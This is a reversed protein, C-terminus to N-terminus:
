IFLLSRKVMWVLLLLGSNHSGLDRVCHSMEWLPGRQTRCWVMPNSPLFLSWWCASLSQCARVEQLSTFDSYVKNWLLLIWINCYHSNTLWFQVLSTLMTDPLVTPTQHLMKCPGASDEISRTQKHGHDRHSSTDRHLASVGDCIGSCHGPIRWGWAPWLLPPQGGSPQQLTSDSRVPTSKVHFPQTSTAKM